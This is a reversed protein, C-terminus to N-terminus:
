HMTRNPDDIGYIQNYAVAAASITWPLTILIGVGCAAGGAFNIFFFVLGAVWWMLKDRSFLLRGVSNVAAAVDMNRELILPLVFSLGITLIPNVILFGLVSLFGGRGGATFGMYIAAFILFSLFAQVFRGEWKFLDGLRPREGRMTKFAMNYLGMLMPGALVGFTVTGLFLGLLSSLSMLLWNEKYVQWGASLWDGLRINTQPPALPPRPQYYAPPPPPQYYQMPPAYPNGQPPAQPATAGQNVPMTPRQPEANSMTDPPLHWTQSDDDPARGSASNQPLNLTPLEADRAPESPLQSTPAEEDVPAPTGCNRCFMKGAETAMGCNSCYAM